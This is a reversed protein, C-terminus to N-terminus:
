RSSGGHLAQACAGVQEGRLGLREHASRAEYVRRALTDHHEAREGLAREARGRREVM